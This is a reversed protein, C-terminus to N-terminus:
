LGRVCRFGQSDDAFGPGGGSDRDACRVNPTDGLWGGGRLARVTGFAPGTPNNTTPLGYPTGYWDWCWEWVNGAMNCLGYGNPAFYGVPSTYPKSGTDFAPNYGVATSVDYAYGDPNNASLPYGYYNAQSSSITDGFPFRMETLGGRAAKEWEAETPLRYGNAGWNVYPTAQGNTYVQTLAADTYYVPALGAQQSRANSWKVVDWWDVTQVPHNAAKGSGPLDFSYGANTAYFYVSQWLGYSVLNTDMYFASVTVNVPVADTEGDLTDGMTFWGGPVLAMGPPPNFAFLLNTNVAQTV